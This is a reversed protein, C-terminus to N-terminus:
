VSFSVLFLVKYSQLSFHFRKQTYFRFAEFDKFDCKKLPTLEHKQDFFALFPKKERKLTM